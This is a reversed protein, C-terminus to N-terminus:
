VALAFINTATTGTSKVRSVAVYLPSLPAIPITVTDGLETIITIDGGSGAYLGICQEPVNDTSDNPTVSIIGRAVGTNEYSFYAL